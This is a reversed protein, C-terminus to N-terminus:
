HIVNIVGVPMRLAQLCVHTSKQLWVSKAAYKCYAGDLVM